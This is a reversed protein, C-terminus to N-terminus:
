LTGRTKGSVQSLDREITVSSSGSFGSWTVTVTAAYGAGPAYAPKTCTVSYGGPLLDTSAVAQTEPLSELYDLRELALDSAREKRVTAVALKTTMLPVAAMALLAVALIVLAIM